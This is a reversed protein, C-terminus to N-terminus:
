RRCRDKSAEFGHKAAEVPAWYWYTCPIKGVYYFEVNGRQLAYAIPSLFRTGADPSHGSRAWFNILLGHGSMQRCAVNWECGHVRKQTIKCVSLCVFALAHAFVYVEETTPPLCYYYYYYLASLSRVSRWPRQLTASHHPLMDYLIRM